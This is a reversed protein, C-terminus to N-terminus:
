LCDYQVPRFVFRESKVRSHPRLYKM